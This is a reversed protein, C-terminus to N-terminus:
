LSASGIKGLCDCLSEALSEAYKTRSTIHTGPVMYVEVDERATLIREWYSRRKESDEKTWFVAIKGAYPEIEYSSAWWNFISLYNQRLNERSPLPSQFNPHAYEIEVAAEKSGVRLQLAVQKKRDNWLRVYEYLHLLRLFWGLQEEQKLHLLDDVRCIGKKLFRGFPSSSGPDMLVLKEVRQGAAHLQQAMEYAFFAGNCWGGLTYPGEPQIARLAAVHAAVVEKLSPLVKLDNYKYTELIYFPQDEGLAEALKLCYLAKGQWDGHLFFFPHKTGGARVAIIPARTTAVQSEIQQLVNALHEITAAEFLISLPLKKGCVQEIRAMLRTALFSHGGLAFFDDRIGIPRVNLLEEWIQVLQHHVTSQPEVYTASVVERSAAPVPLARRDVKGNPTLPLADLYVYTSPLMYAPLRVALYPRLEANSSTKGDHLVVYAVLRQDGPVDERAIVVAECVMPHQSLVSEIEGLEIRIGRVKVQHDLRGLYEIAGDPLYRAWDGTKYLLNGPQVSFPHHVFKAATLEPRNFYGLALGDGGIYLEGSVGVPVLQMHRDLLYIQTNDIPRGIPVCSREANGKIEYCTADAAVESSGYLNLLVCTPLQQQFHRVLELPLAEGSCIWYKLAPLREKLSSENDLLVRLLSPVLVIRTVSHAALIQVFQQPDKVIDDPIIVSAIGQLLPGFIEWVSDVFSLTTKQCCVEGPAFPYTRWMWNFRNLAARHTGLVGKPTGTSGSTYLMYAPDEGNVLCPLNETSEQKITQWERDLCIVNTTHPLRELLHQQTVLVAAQSDALMFALRDAPYAPDLPIYTGGAKLIGLLAVILEHSREHCLAIRAGSQIGQGQLYRAFQNAQANLDQYSLSTDHFTIASAGPTREVQAEFLHALTETRPYAVHTDNWAFLIQQREADTLLPLASLPQTPDDVM